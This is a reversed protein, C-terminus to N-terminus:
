IKHVAISKIGSKPIVIVGNNEKDYLFVYSTNQMIYSHKNYIKYNDTWTVMHNDKFKGEEIDEIDGHIKLAINGCFFFVGYISVIVPLPNEIYKWFSWRPMWKFIILIFLAFSLLSWEIEKATFYRFVVLIIMLYPLSEILWDSLKDEVKTNFQKEHTKTHILDDYGSMMFFFMIVTSILSALIVDTSSSVYDSITFFDSTNIDFYGLLNACYLYGSILFLTSGLSAALIANASTLKIPTISKIKESEIKKKTKQKIIKRTDLYDKKISKKLIKFSKDDLPEAQNYVSKAKDINENYNDNSTGMKVFLHYTFATLLHYNSMLINIDNHAIMVDYLEDVVKDDVNSSEEDDKLGLLKSSVMASLDLNVSLMEDPYKSFTELYVKSFILNSCKRRLRIVHRAFLVSLSLALNIMLTGIYHRINKLIMNIIVSPLFLRGFCNCYINEFLMCYWM